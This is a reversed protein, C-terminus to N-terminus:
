ARTALKAFVSNSTEVDKSKTKKKGHMAGDTVLWSLFYTQFATENDLPSKKRLTNDRSLKYTGHLGLVFEARTHLKDSVKWKKTGASENSIEFFSIAKEYDKKVTKAFDDSSMAGSYILPINKKCAAYFDHISDSLSIGSVEILRAIDIGTTDDKEVKVGDLIANNNHALITYYLLTQLNSDNCLEPHDASYISISTQFAENNFVDDIILDIDFTTSLTDSLLEFKAADDASATGNFVKVALKCADIRLMERTFVHDFLTKAADNVMPHCTFGIKKMEFEGTKNNKSIKLM